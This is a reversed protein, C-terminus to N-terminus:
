GGALRAHLLLAHRQLALCGFGKGRMCPAAHLVGHQMLAAHQQSSAEEQGQMCLQWEVSWTCTCAHLHGSPCAGPMSCMDASSMSTSATHEAPPATCQASWGVVAAAHISCAIVCAILLHATSQMPPPMCQFASCASCAQMRDNGSTGHKMNPHAHAIRMYGHHPLSNQHPTPMLVHDMNHAVTPPNATTCACQHCFMHM